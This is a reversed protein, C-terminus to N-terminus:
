VVQVAIRHCANNLYGKPNWGPLITPQSVGKSDTAKVWVEYYGTTPFGIDANWRQWALRNVPKKVQAIQWTAGFDISVEVKSVSLDGAWAHGRCSFTESLKHNLGSKPFTVLSKVPMSEIICMDQAPVKESPQVPKCPVSYSPAAMKAGDHVKNRVVIEKLWKGSVSAPWGGMVLRLPYGNQYPIDEGNFSWAILSEEELAKSMPVGRSIPHKDPNGSLHSDAGYYGIYVADKKIGCYKLVDSLRVGTWQACGVAGTSWQNGKAPPNFESRGNGGCELTLAYTHHKFTKKLLDLTFVQPNECSEGGISLQWGNVDKMSELDPPIGNNRVFFHKAATISDDLLYPPTEANIPRNNLVRLGDKGDIVFRESESAFAAPIFGGPMLYAFPISTGIAATMASLGSRKLFGRRSLSRTERGWLLREAKTRDEEYLKPISRVKKEKSM